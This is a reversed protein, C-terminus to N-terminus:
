VDVKHECQCRHDGGPQQAAKGSESRAHHHRGDEGQQEAGYIGDGDNDQEIDRYRRLHQRRDSLGDLPAEDQLHSKDGRQEHRQSAPQKTVMSGSGIVRAMPMATM